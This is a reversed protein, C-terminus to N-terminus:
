VGPIIEGLIWFAVFMLQYPGASHGKESAKRGILKSLYIILIIELM